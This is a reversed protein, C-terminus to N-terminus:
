EEDIDTDGPKAGAERARAYDELAKVRNEPTAREFLTIGNLHDIEHQMCRGLLGDSEIEWRDGNFDSYQVRAWPARSIPVTIGPLSLCGEGAEVPEGKTEVVEPNLMVIPNKDHESWDCDVVIIRKTVGVQPGAIGVGNDKYMVNAMQKALRKLSKDKPDVPECVQNLLPDPSQVISLM